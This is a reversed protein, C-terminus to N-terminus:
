NNEIGLLEKVGKTIELLCNDYEKIDCGYPDRINKPMVSLKQAYSPFARLMTMFHSETIGIVCDCQILIEKTLLIARHNVFMNGEVPKFGAKSLAILANESIKEGVNPFLGASVATIGINRGLENAVAAAMPSRCTNGTCVFCIKKLKFDQLPLKHTLVTPEKTLSKVASIEIASNEPFATMMLLGNKSM